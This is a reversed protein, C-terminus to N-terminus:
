NNATVRSIRNLSKAMAAGLALPSRGRIAIARFGDWKIEFIWDKDTFAEKAALALM